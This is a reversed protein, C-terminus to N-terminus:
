TFINISELKLENNNIERTLVILGILVSPKSPNPEFIHPDRKIIIELLSNQIRSEILTISPTGSEKSFKVRSRSM